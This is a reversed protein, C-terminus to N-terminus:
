SEVGITTAGRYGHTKSLQCCTALSEVGMSATAHSLSQAAVCVAWRLRTALPEGEHVGWLYGAAFADGAGVAGAIKSQPLNV